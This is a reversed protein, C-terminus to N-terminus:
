KAAADTVFFFFLKMINIGPQQPSPQFGYQIEAPRVDSVFAPQQYTRPNEEPEAEFPPKFGGFELPPPKFDAPQPRPEREPLVLPNAPVQYVYGGADEPQYAPAPPATPSPYAPAAVPAPASPTSLYVPEQEEIPQYVVEPTTSVIFPARTTSPYTPRPSTQYVPQATTQVIPIAPVAAVEESYDPYELPSAPVPYAYGSDQPAGYTSSIIPAPTTSPYAPVRTTSPYTAVPTTSPYVPQATTSLVVPQVIETPYQLPNAPVPYDYGPTSSPAYTSPSPSPAPSYTTFPAPSPAYTSSPAPSPAYTTSLGGESVLGAEGPNSVSIGPRRSPLELPNAPVPYSYGGDGAAAGV